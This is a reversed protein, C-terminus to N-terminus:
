RRGAPKSPKADSDAPPETDVIYVRMEESMAPIPLPEEEFDALAEEQPPADPPSSLTVPDFPHPFQASSPLFEANTSGSISDFPQSFLTPSTLAAVGPEGIVPELPHLSPFAPNEAHPQGSVLAPFEYGWAELINILKPYFNFFSM